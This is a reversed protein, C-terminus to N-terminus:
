PAPRENLAYNVSTIIENITVRGDGNCDGCCAGAQGQSGAVLRFPPTFLTDLDVMTLAPIAEMAFPPSFAGCGDVSPLTSGVNISRSSAGTDEVYLTHGPPAISAAAFLSPGGSESSILYPPGSCDTSEFALDDSSEFGDRRM